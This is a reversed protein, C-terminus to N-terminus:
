GTVLKVLSSLDSFGFSSLGGNGQAFSMLKMALQLNSTSSSSGNKGFFGLLSNLKSTSSSSQDQSDTAIATLIQFLGNMKGSNTGSSSSLFTKLLSLNSFSNSGGQNNSGGSFFGDLWNNINQGFSPDEIVPAITTTKSFFFRRAHRREVSSATASAFMMIMLLVIVFHKFNSKIPVSMSVFEGTLFTRHM